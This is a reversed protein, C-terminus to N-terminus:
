PAKIRAAVSLTGDSNRKVILAEGSAPYVGTLGTVVLQHTVMLIPAGMPLTAIDQRLRAMQEAEADRRGLFSNLSPLIRADRGTMLKATELCRCWASSLVVAFQVGARTAAEGIRRAQARGGDDLNRQTHCDGLTLSPPDGTGPAEAHRILVMHGPEKALAWAETANARSAFTWTAAALTVLAAILSLQRRQM